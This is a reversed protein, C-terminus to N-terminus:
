RLFTPTTRDGLRVLKGLGVHQSAKATNVPCGDFPGTEKRGFNDRAKVGSM